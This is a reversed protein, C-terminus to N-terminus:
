LSALKKFITQFHGRLSRNTELLSPSAGVQRCLFESYTQLGDKTTLQSGRKSTRCASHYGCVCAIKRSFPDRASVNCHRPCSDIAAFQKGWVSGELHLTVKPTNSFAAGGILLLCDQRLCLSFLYLVISVAFLHLELWYYRVVLCGSGSNITCFRVTFCSGLSTM